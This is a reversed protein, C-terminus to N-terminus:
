FMVGRTEDSDAFAFLVFSALPPVVPHQGRRPDSQRQRGGALRALLLVLAFAVLAGIVAGGSLGLAAGSIGLVGVIVAGTSAGSSIRLVFPDALPNRLLSQMIAGCFALGVGCAAAVLAHAGGVTLITPRLWRAAPVSDIRKTSRATLQGTLVFTGVDATRRRAERRRRGDPHVPETGSRAVLHIAQASQRCPTPPARIPNWFRPTTPSLDGTRLLDVGLRALREDVRGHLLTRPAPGDSGSEVEPHGDGADGSGHEGM